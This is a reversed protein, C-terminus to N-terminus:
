SVGYAATTGPLLFLNRSPGPMGRAGTHHAERQARARSARLQAEEAAQREELERLSDRPQAPAPDDEMDDVSAASDSM